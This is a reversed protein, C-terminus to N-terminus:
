RVNRLEGSAANKFSLECQFKLKRLTDSSNEWDIGVGRFRLPAKFKSVNKLVTLRDRNALIEVTLSRSITLKKPSEANKRLITSRYLDYM